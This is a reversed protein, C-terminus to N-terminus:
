KKEKQEATLKIENIINNLERFAPNYMKFTFDEHTILPDTILPLGHHMRDDAQGPTWGEKAVGSIKWIVRYPNAADHITVTLGAVKMFAAKETHPTLIFLDNMLDEKVNKDKRISIDTFVQTM